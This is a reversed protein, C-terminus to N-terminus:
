VIVQNTRIDHVGYSTIRGQALRYSLFCFEWLHGPSRFGFTISQKDNSRYHEPEFLRGGQGVLFGAKLRQDDINGETSGHGRSNSHTVVLSGNPGSQSGIGFTCGNMNATFCLRAAQGLVTIPTKNDEYEVLYAKFWVTDTERKKRLMYVPVREMGFDDGIEILRYGVAGGYDAFTLDDPQGWLTPKSCTGSVFCAIGNMFARPDALLRDRDQTTFSM